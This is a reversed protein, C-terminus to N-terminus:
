DNEVAWNYYDIAYFTGLALLMVHFVMAAWWAFRRGRRLGAALVLVLLAPMVSM